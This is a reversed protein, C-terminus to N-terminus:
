ARRLLEFASERDGVALKRMVASVHVRVTTPSVFLRRAVEDTSIGQSLMEIVEWERPSLRSAASSRRAFRKRSPARFEDVIRTVLAPPMATEGALVSRLAAPLSQPDSSKLLYGSAGARLSDFLDEDLESQTLMVIATEPLQRSIQQAAQIGNGPMHIDLLAVEPRWQLALDIAEDASAGEGCIVCGGAELAQRIRSRIPAHDDALIVRIGSDTVM